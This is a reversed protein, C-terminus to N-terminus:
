EHRRPAQKTKGKLGMRYREQREAGSKRRAQSAHGDTCYPSRKPRGRRLYFSTCGPLRCQAVGGVARENCLLLLAHAVIAALEGLHYYRVIGPEAGSYRPVLLMRSADTRIETLRTPTLKHQAIALLDKRLQEQMQGFQGDAKKGQGDTAGAVTLSKMGAEFLARPLHLGPARLLVGALTGHNAFALVLEILEVTSVIQDANADAVAHLSHIANELEAETQVTYRKLIRNITM